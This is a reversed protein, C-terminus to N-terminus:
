SKPKAIGAPKDGGDSIVILVKKEPGAPAAPSGLRTFAEAVADHLATQGAPLVRSIARVLEDPRNTFPVGAPLGETVKENFNIVFMRDEPNSFQVFARAAAIVEPLKPAMSASHDIVLGVTVPVDEHRFLRIAQRVGDEYVTFDRESLDPAFRGKRDHVAAQLVVLDVNVSIQFPEPAQPTAAGAIGALFLLTLAKLLLTLAKM